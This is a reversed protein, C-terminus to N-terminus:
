INLKKAATIEIEEITSPLVPSKQEGHIEM